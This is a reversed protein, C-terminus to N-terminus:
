PAPTLATGITTIGGSIETVLAGYATAAGIAFVIAMLMWEITELGDEERVFNKVFNVMKKEEGSTTVWWM